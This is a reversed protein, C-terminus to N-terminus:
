RDFQFSQFYQEFSGCRLHRASTSSKRSEFPFIASISASKVLHQWKRYELESIVVSFNSDVTYLTRYVVCLAVPVFSVFLGHSIRNTTCRNSAWWLGYNSSIMWKTCIRKKNEERFAMTKMPRKLKFQRSEACKKGRSMWHSRSGFFTEISFHILIKWQSDYPFEKILWNVISWYALVSAYKIRVVFPFFRITRKVLM